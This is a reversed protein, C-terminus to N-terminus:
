QVSFSTRDPMVREYLGDFPLSLAMWQESMCVTLHYRCHWEAGIDSRVCHHESGTVINSGPRNGMVNRLLALWRVSSACSLIHCCMLLSTYFPFICWTILAVSPPDTRQSVERCLFFRITFIHVGFTSIASCVFVYVTRTRLSAGLKYLTEGNLSGVM